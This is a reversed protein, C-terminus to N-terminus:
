CFSLNSCREQVIHLRILIVLYMMCCQMIQYNWGKVCAFLVNFWTVHIVWCAVSREKTVARSSTASWWHLVCTLLTVSQVQMACDSFEVMDRWFSILSILPFFSHNCSESTTGGVLTSNIYNRNYWTVRICM